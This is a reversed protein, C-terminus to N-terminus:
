RPLTYWIFVLLGLGVLGAGVTGFLPINGGPVSAGSAPGFAAATITTGAASPPGAAYARFGTGLNLGPM